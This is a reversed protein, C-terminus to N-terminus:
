GDRSSPLRNAVEAAYGPRTNGAEQTWRTARNVSIGLLGSLVAAPMEAALEMLASNRGVTAPVGLKALRRLLVKPSLPQGRRFGPFIWAGDASDGTKTGPLDAILDGVLDGFVPPVAIPQGGLLIETGHDTRRVDNTTLRTIKTARQAYLLVLLGAVRDALVGTDETLLQRALAWRRDHDDFVERTPENKFRPIDIGHAHGGRVAWSVFGRARAFTDHALWEDIDDQTCSPLSQGRAHLWNLLHASATLTNCAYTVQDQTLPRRESNARLHRLRHWTAFGRLIARDDTNTVRLIRREISREASILLEDRTPLVGSDILITRLHEVDARPALADLLAHTVPETTKALGTLLRQNSARAMWNLGTRSDIAALAALVPELEPRMPGSDPTLHKRLVEPWACAACLGHHHLREITGCRQCPRHSARDRKYCTQCLAGKETHARIPRRRRCHACTGMAGCEKCLPQGTETRRSVVRDRGCGSCPEARLKDSCSKCRPAEGDAYLCPKQKGCLSCFATPPRCCAHCLVTDGERRAAVRRRHCRSCPELLTPETRSCRACLGDGDSTRRDIKATMGCRAFPKAHATSWCSKCCRLGDRGRSLAVIRTCFPCASAVVGAVHRALLEDVLKVVVPSGHAGAGTLLDPRAALQAALPARRRPQPILEIILAALEARDAHADLRAITDIIISMPDAAIVTPQTSSGTSDM